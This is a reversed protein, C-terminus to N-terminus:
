NRKAIGLNSAFAEKKKMNKRTVDIKKDILNKYKTLIKFFFEQKSISEIM